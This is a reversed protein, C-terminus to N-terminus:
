THDERSQITEAACFCRHDFESRIRRAKLSIRGTRGNKKLRGAIEDMQKMLLFYSDDMYPNM